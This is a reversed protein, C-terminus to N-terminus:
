FYESFIDWSYLRLLGLDLCYKLFFVDTIFNIKNEIVNFTIQKTQKSYNQKFAEITCVFCCLLFYVFLCVSLPQLCCFAILLVERLGGQVDGKVLLFKVSIIHELLNKWTIAFHIPLLKEFYRNLLVRRFSCHAAGKTFWRTSLRKDPFVRCFHLLYINDSLSEWLLQKLASQSLLLTCSREYLVRCM